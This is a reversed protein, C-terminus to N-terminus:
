LKATNGDYFKLMTSMHEGGKIMNFTGDENKFVIFCLPKFKGDWLICLRDSDDLFWRGDKRKDNKRLVQVMVGEDSFYNVCTSQDKEKRCDVTKDYVLELLQERTLPAPEDSWATSTVSCLSLTILIAILRKSFM